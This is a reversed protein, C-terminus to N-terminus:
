RSLQLFNRLLQHGYETMVSEPHFQVSYIPLTKHEMAMIEHGDDNPLDCVATVNLCDPLSDNDVILSHYRTVKFTDPIDKFLKGGHHKVISMKGHMVRHAHTVKGSFVEAIAQHGLCVGLIPITGAFSEIAKLTIGANSPTSPGPSIVLYDPALLKINNINIEDNYKVLVEQGLEKFYQALNFTFSDYNDILLIM